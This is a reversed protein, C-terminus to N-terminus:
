AEYSHGWGWSKPRTQCRQYATYASVIATCDTLVKSNFTTYFFSEVTIL